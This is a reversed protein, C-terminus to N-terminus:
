SAQDSHYRRLRDQAFFLYSMTSNQRHPMKPLRPMGIRHELKRQRKVFHFSVSKHSGGQLALPFLVSNRLEVDLMWANKTRQALGLTDLTGTLKDQLNEWFDWFTDAYLELPDWPVSHMLLNPCILQTGGPHAKTKRLDAEARSQFWITFDRTSWIWSSHLLKELSNRQHDCNASHKKVAKAGQSHLSKGTQFVRTAQAKIQLVIQERPTNSLNPVVSPKDHFCSRKQAVKEVVKNFAQLKQFLHTRHHKHCLTGSFFLEDCPSRQSQPIDSLGASLNRIWVESTCVPLILIDIWMVFCCFCHREQHNHDNAPFLNCAM